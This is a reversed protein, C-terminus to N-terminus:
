SRGGEVCVLGFFWFVWSEFAESAEGRGLVDGVRSVDRDDELPAVEEAAFDGGPAVGVAVGVLRAEVDEEPGIGVDLVQELLQSDLVPQLPLLVRHDEGRPVDGPRERPEVEGLPQGRREVADDRDQAVVLHEGPGLLDLERDAQEGGDDPPLGVDLGLVVLGDRLPHPLLADRGPDVVLDEDRHGLREVEDVGLLQAHLAHENGQVPKQLLAVPGLHRKQVPHGRLPEALRDQVPGDLGRPPIQALSGNRGRRAAVAGGRRAGRGGLGVPGARADDEVGAELLDLEVAGRALDRAELEDVAPGDRAVDVDRRHGDVDDLLDHGVRPFLHGVVGLELLQHAHGHDVHVQPKVALQRRDVM